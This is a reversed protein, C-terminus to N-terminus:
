ADDRRTWVVVVMRERLRGATVIRKEGYDFREDPYSFTTSEFVEVADAFDLGREALIVDRKAPDFTIRM